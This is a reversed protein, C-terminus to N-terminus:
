KKAKRKPKLFILDLRSAADLVKSINTKSVGTAARLLLLIARRHVRSKDFVRFASALQEINEALEETLEALAEALAEATPDSM